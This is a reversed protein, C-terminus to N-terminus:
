SATLWFFNQGVPPVVHNTQVEGINKPNMKQVDTGCKRAIWGITTSVDGFVLSALSM